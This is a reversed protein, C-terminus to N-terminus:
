RCKGWSGRSDHGTANYYCDSRQWLSSKWAYLFHMFGCRLRKIASMSVAAVHVRKEDKEDFPYRCDHGYGNGEGEPIGFICSVGREDRNCMNGLGHLHGSDHYNETMVHEWRRAMIFAFQWAEEMRDHLTSTLLCRRM